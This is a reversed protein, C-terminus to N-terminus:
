GSIGGRVTHLINIFAELPQSPEPSSPPPSVLGGGHAFVFYCGVGYAILTIISLIVIFFNYKVEESYLLTTYLQEMYLLSLAKGTVGKNTQKFIAPEEKNESYYCTPMFSGMKTSLLYINDDRILYKKKQYIFKTCDISIYFADVVRSKKIFNIEIYNDPKKGVLYLDDANVSEPCFTTTMPTESREQIIESSVPAPEPSKEKKFERKKKFNIIKKPHPNFRLKKTSPNSEPIAKSPKKEFLRDVKDEVDSIPM